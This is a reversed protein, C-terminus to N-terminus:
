KAAVAAPKKETSKDTSKAATSGGASEKKDGSKKKYDTIYFGTGKFILGAGGGIKRRLTARKCAPCKKLLADKMSQFAELEHHCKTCVYEYTPMKSSAAYFFGGRANALRKKHVAFLLANALLAM